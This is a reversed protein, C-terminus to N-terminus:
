SSSDRLNFCPPEAAKRRGRLTSLVKRYSHRFTPNSFCYVVPDLVGHLYALSGTIDLAHMMVRLSGCSGLGWLVHTLARALFGPLFCLAFLVVVVTVLAKARHLKPQKEPDRLRRQLTRILSANCFLILGFPLGCQFFFLAEQWTASLSGEARPYFSSCEPFDQAAESIGLLGPLTLTGALLWVLVSLGQAARSSLLNVKLRPHVVHLYRDLAVAALFVVGVGHSLDLLFRLARCTAYGLGWARHNLHFAALFPLCAALLLDALVLHFLYVAHPKWVRLRFFFTWLAVANGMLGLVCELGLLIGVAMDVMTDPASCNPFGM